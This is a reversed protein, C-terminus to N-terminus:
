WTAGFNLMVVKGHQEYLNWSNGYTDDCTFDPPTEGVAYVALATSSYMSMLLLIILLRKV